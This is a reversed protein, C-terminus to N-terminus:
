ELYEQECDLLIGTDDKVKNQIIKILQIVDEAKARGTNVIFNAHKYSVMVDNVKFGKLGSNEILKGASYGKPNVFVSGANPYELPQKLKREDMYEKMKGMVNDGYELEFIAELCILDSHKFISDRYGFKMEDKSLTRINNGDLVIAEKIIMCINFGYAGANQYVAGGVTAPIGYAFELGCLNRKACELSLKSLNYGAMVKVCKDKIILKDFKSLKILVGDYKHSIILNSGNGLIKYRINNDKLYDLLKKLELIDEPIYLKKIEGDLKYSTYESIKAKNIIRM